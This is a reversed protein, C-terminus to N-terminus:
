LLEGVQVLDCRREVNLAGSHLDGPRVEGHHAIMTSKRWNICGAGRRTAGVGWAIRRGSLAEWGYDRSLQRRHRKEMVVILDAWEIQEPSLVM